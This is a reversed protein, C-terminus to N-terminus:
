KKKTQRKERRATSTGGALHGLGLRRLESAFTAKSEQMRKAERECARRFAKSAAREDKDGFAGVKVSLKAAAGPAQLLGTGGRKKGGTSREAPALHSLVKRTYAADLNCFVPDAQALYEGLDLGRTDDDITSCVFSRRQDVTGLSVAKAGLERIWAANGGIQFVAGLIHELLVGVRELEEDTLDSATEPKLRVARAARISSLALERLKGNRLSLLLALNAVGHATVQDGPNTPFVRDLEEKPVLHDRAFNVYAAGAFMAAGFAQIDKDAM